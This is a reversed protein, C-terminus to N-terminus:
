NLSFFNGGVTDDNVDGFGLARDDDEFGFFVDTSVASITGDTNIKIAIKKSFRTPNEVTEILIQDIYQVVHDSRSAESKTIFIEIDSKQRDTLATSYIKVIYGFARERLALLQAQSNLIYDEAFANEPLPDGLTWGPGWIADANEGRCDYSGRDYLENNQIIEVYVGVAISAIGVLLDWTSLNVDSRLLALIAGVREATSKGSADTTGFCKVEWENLQEAVTTPFMNNYITGATAYLEGLVKASSHTEAGAYSSAPPGEYYVNEPLERNLLAYIEAQTLFKAM